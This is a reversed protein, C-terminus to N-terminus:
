IKNSSPQCKNKANEIRQYKWVYGGAKHRRGCLVNSISCRAVGTIQEAQKASEYTAIYNGLLDFQMVPKLTKKLINVAHLTNEQSTVWELNEVRNNHKNGDIHNVCPKNEPNPIFTEAVIRQIERTKGKGNKFLTTKLYGKDTNTLKKFSGKIVRSKDNRGKYKIPRDFSKIRGLSSVQYMGEYGRVDSWIEM